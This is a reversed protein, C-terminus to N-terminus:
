PGLSVCCSNELAVYDLNTGRVGQRKRNFGPPIRVSPNHVGKLREGGLVALYKLVFTVLPPISKISVKCSRVHCFFDVVGACRCLIM